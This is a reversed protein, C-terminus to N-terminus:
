TVDVDYDDGVSAEPVKLPARLGATALRNMVAVNALIALFSGTLVFWAATLVTSIISLIVIVLWLGMTFGPNLMLMLAANRFATWLNPTEMEYLLPWVYFQVTFWAALVLAWIARLVAGQLSSDPAYALLNTLNIGVIVVNLGLVVLSRKFHLKFADWFYETTSSPQTIAQRQMWVLAAWAAPATVVPLTLLFWLINGWVAQYGRQNIWRITHWTARFADLM